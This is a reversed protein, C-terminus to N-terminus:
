LRWSFCFFCSQTCTITETLRGKIRESLPVFTDKKSLDQMALWLEQIQKTVVETRKTVEEVLPLSQNSNSSGSTSSGVSYLSQTIPPRTEEKKSVQRAEFM